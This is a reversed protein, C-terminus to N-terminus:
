WESRLRRQHDLGDPGEGRWLGFAEQSSGRPNRTLYEHVAQRVLKARPAQRDQSLESLTKLDTDPIDVLIRM